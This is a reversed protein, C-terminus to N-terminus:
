PTLGKMESSGKEQLMPLTILFEAGGLGSTLALISGRHKKVVIDYVVSLGLGTGQGVPKTTFFPDFIRHRISEPIGPGDDDFQIHVNGNDEWTRIIIKGPSDRHQDAIAQAANVVINLFVQNLEDLYCEVMSQLEYNTEVEAVYKWNNRAVTLTDDLAKNINVASLMGLADIRSFDKLSQVIKIIRHYGEDSEELLQPIDDIVRAVKESQRLSIGVGAQNELKNIYELLRTMYQKMTIHNSQVFGLPNNIEHAVGAALQGISALKEQQVLHQQNIKLQDNAESLEINAQWLERQSEIRDTIDKFVGHIVTIDNKDGWEASFSALCFLERGDRTRLAVEIDSLALGRELQGTIFRMAPSIIELKGPDEKESIGLLQRGASNITQVRAEVDIAVGMDHSGSMVTAFMKQTQHLEAILARNTTTNALHDKLVWFSPVLNRHVATVLQVRDAEMNGSFNGIEILGMAKSARIIPLVLSASFQLDGFVSGVPLNQFNIREPLSDAGTAGIKFRMDDHETYFDVTLIQSGEFLMLYGADARALDVLYHLMRHMRGTDHESILSLIIEQRIKLAHRVVVLKEILQDKTMERIDGTM